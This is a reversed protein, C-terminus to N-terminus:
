RVEEASIGPCQGSLERSAPSAGAGTGLHAEIRGGGLIPQDNRVRGAWGADYGECPPFQSGFVGAVSM